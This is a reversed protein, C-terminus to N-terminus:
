CSHLRLKIESEANSINGASNVFKLQNVIKKMYDRQAVRM